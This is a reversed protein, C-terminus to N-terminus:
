GVEGALIAPHYSFERFVFVDMQTLIYNETIKNAQKMDLWYCISLLINKLRRFGKPKIISMGNRCFRFYVSDSQLIDLTEIKTKMQKEEDNLQNKEWKSSSSFACKAPSFPRSEMAKKMLSFM